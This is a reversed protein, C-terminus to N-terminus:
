KWGVRDALKIAKKSLRGYEYTNINDEKYVGLNKLEIPVEVSNVVPYEFNTYTYIKQAKDSVLFEILKKGNEINRANLLLGAGSINIHTGMNKDNPFYIGLNDFLGKRDSNLMKVVYYSNVIAIDGIGSAIAKIQDRDGGAPDRAFNSVLGEAWLEAKSEGFKAIMHAILSQNYINSSSRILIRKSFIPDSLHKYGKLENLNVRDKSYVVIRARLSLGFWLNNKDKYNSNIRNNLFNSNIPQFFGEKAAKWLNGADTTLLVDAPSNKGERVIRQHLQSAKATILNVRIGYDNEFLDILPKILHEKRASYLNVESSWSKSIYFFTFLTILLLNFIKM